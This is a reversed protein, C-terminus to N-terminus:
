PATLWPSIRREIARALFNLFETGQGEVFASSDRSALALVGFRGPLDLRALAHSGMAQGYLAHGTAPSSPGTFDNDAGLLQDALGPAAARIAKADRMPVGGEIFIRIADVALVACLDSGLRANLDALDDCEMLSLTAVHTQALIALNARAHSALEARAAKLRRNEDLLRARAAAGFDIVDGTVSGGALRAMLEGDRRVWDPDAMLAERMANMDLDAPARAGDGTDMMETGVM